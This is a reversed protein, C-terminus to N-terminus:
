SLDLDAPRARRQLRYERGDTTRTMFGWEVLLRRAMMRDEFLADIVRNVEPESYARNLTLCRTADELQLMRKPLRRAIPKPQPLLRAKLAEISAAQDIGTTSYDVLATFNTAQVLVMLQFGPGGGGHGVFRVNGGDRGGDNMFGYSYGPEAFGTNPYPVPKLGATLGITSARHQALRSVAPAIAAPDALFTGSYVWGPDYDPIAPHRTTWEAFGEIGLPELVLERLAEYYRNGNRTEVLMLLLLYGINSYEFGEHAHNLSECRQLLEERSWAPENAKVAENYAALASYDSLGSTHNLLRGIQREAYTASLGQLHEGIQSELDVGLAVVAQALFPKSISYVPIM